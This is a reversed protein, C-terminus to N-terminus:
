KKDRALLLEAESTSISPKSNYTRPFFKEKLVLYIFMSNTILYRKWLRRPEQIVRYLWELGYQQMWKPARKVVGAVVDFSGGVGMIFPIKISNKYTNLFIEKTPSTIAVFLIDAGSSAIKQAILPEDKKSYYGNCYGAIIDTGHITAYKKVVHEVVNETAGFFYIRYKNQKARAILTEMLDIGAVREPVPKKLFRSAWVIAKGDANIVDCDVLSKKLEYNKQANVLKAANIVGHHLPRKERIATDIIDVTQKMTLADVPIDCISVRTVKSPM